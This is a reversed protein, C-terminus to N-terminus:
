NYPTVDSRISETFPLARWFLGCPWAATRARWGVVVRRGSLGLSRRLLERVAGRGMNVNM